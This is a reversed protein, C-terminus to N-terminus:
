ARGLMRDALAHMDLTRIEKQTIGGTPAQSRRGPTAIPAQYPTNVQVFEQKQYDYMRGLSNMEKITKASAEMNPSQTALMFGIVQREFQVGPDNDDTKNVIKPAIGGTRLKEFEEDIKEQDSALEQQAKTAQEQESARRQEYTQNAVESAKAIFDGWTKPQWQANPDENEEAKPTNFISLKQEHEDLKGAIGGLQESIKGIAETLAATPDPAPDETPDVPDAPPDAPPDVILSPDIPDQNPDDLPNEIAKRAM